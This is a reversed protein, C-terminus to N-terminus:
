PILAAPVPKDAATGFQIAQFQNTASKIIYWNGDRFVAVDAKGDGDYDAPVPIDTGLGFAYGTYGATSRLLYWAGNQPRFVAIDTRGDGDYDAAVPKDGSQGFQAASFGDRSRIIYWTGNTPRFVAIDSKGDGDYDAAVPVDGSQGFQTATFGNISQLRYWVGNSPRFVGIDARGDNDYDAPIPVDEAQGFQVARFQGTSSDLSYWNGNRFVGVDAKGDGDYDAPTLKDTGLGFGFATYGATSRLLHWAGNSLRFVAQDARGDGDFDFPVRASQPTSIKGAILNFSEGPIASEGAFYVNGQADILMTPASRDRRWDIFGDYGNDPNDYQYKWLTQGIPSYKHIVLNYNSFIQSTTGVYINGAADLMLKNDGQYDEPLVEDYIQSWLTQGTAPNLKLTYADNNNIENNINTIGTVVVNGSCDAKLASVIENAAYNSASWRKVWQTLGVNNIKLVLNEDPGSEIKVNGAVFVNGQCDLELEEARELGYSTQTDFRNRWVEQGGSNYKITVVNSTEGGRNI